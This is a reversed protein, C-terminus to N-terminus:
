LQRSVFGIKGPCKLAPDGRLAQQGSCNRFRFTVSRRLVFPPPIGGSTAAYCGGVADWDRLLLQDKETILITILEPNPDSNLAGGGAASQKIFSPSPPSECTEPSSGM